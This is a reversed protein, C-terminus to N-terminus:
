EASMPLEILMEVYDYYANGLQETFALVNEIDEESGHVRIDVVLKVFCEKKGGSAAFKVAKELNGKRYQSVALNGIIYTNYDAAHKGYATRQLEKDKNNCLKNFDEKYILQEGYKVILGDNGSLISDETCRALDETSGSYKYKLDACTVAFSYNGLKESTTAMTQPSILIWLSFILIGAFALAGLTILASKLIVRNM